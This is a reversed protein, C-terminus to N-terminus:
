AINLPAPQQVMKGNKDHGTKARPNSLEESANPRGPV